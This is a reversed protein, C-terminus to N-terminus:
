RYPDSARCEIWFMADRCLHRVHPSEHCLMWDWICGVVSYSTLQDLRLDRALIEFVMRVDGLVEPNVSELVEILRERTRM